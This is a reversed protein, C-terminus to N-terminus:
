IWDFININNVRVIVSMNWIKEQCESAVNKKLKLICNMCYILNHNRLNKRRFTYKNEDDTIIENECNKWRKFCHTLSNLCYRSRRIQFYSKMQQYFHWKIKHFNRDLICCRPDFPFNFACHANRKRWNRKRIFRLKYHCYGNWIFHSFYCYGM